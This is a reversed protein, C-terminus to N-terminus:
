IEMDAASPATDTKEKGETGMLLRIRAGALRALGVDIRSASMTMSASRVIVSDAVAGIYLSDAGGMQYFAGTVEARKVGLHGRLLPLIELDAEARRATLMTDGTEAMVVSADEVALRLPFGLSLDEVGIKMGASEEVMPLVKHAVANLVGPVYLAAVAVLLLAVLAVPILLVTRLWRLARRRVPKGQPTHTDAATM